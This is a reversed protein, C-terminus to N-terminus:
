KRKKAPLTPKRRYKVQLTNYLLMFMVSQYHALQDHQLNLMKTFLLHLVAAARPAFHSQGAAAFQLPSWPRYRLQLKVYRNLSAHCPSKTHLSQTDLRCIWAAM